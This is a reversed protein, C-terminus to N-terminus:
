VIKLSFYHYDNFGRKQTIHEYEVTDGIVVTEWDGTYEEYTDYSYLTAYVRERDGTNLNQLILILAHKNDEDNFERVDLVKYYNDDM